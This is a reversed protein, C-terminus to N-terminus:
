PAPQDLLDRVKRALAEPTFPKQLFATDPDLVGHHVIADDTYGSIYLVRIQPSLEAIKMALGRGSMEPMVVDTVVLKISDRHTKFTELAEVGNCSEFVAYGSLRLSEAALSRVVNDDEVLLIAESGGRPPEPPGAEPGESETDEQVRPLYVKFTAGKGEESYVWIHGGSQQVIGYVTALGLGTGKGKEKTTFFPEFIHSLTEQSMGIGTDSMALLVYHGPQVGFHQQAYVKDLYINATEITLKGGAPMADRANIALNLIVQEILGPDAFVRGLSGDPMGVLEIDEGILRRLMSQTDAIVYNLDLVRPQLVQRRSFALLQSTLNAAKLGAKRIQEIDRRLPEAESRQLVLDSYGIVATMLNNFDHAVGGALTGIAEMKAAQRLQEELRKRDTVDRMIGVILEDGNEGRYLTRRTAVTHIRGESDRIEEESIDEEGSKFVAEDKKRFGDVDSKPFFDFDSRGILEDRSRGVFSCFADNLLVWRFETDKVFLPDAISNIIKDLYKRSEALAEEARKRETIDLLASLGKHSDPIVVVSNVIHKIRGARDRLQFEYTQPASKRDTRRLEHYSKMKDLDAAGAVFEMWSKKGEIEDRAYGTLKEFEKNVLSITTNEETFMLATGSNEFITRYKAESERLAAEAQRCEADAKELTGGIAKATRIAVVVAFTCFLVVSIASVYAGNLSTVFHQLLDSGIVAIFVLPVFKRLLTARVSGDTFPKIFFSDGGQAAVLGVGLIVFASSAALTMSGMGTAYQWPSGYAYSLTCVLGTLAVLGALCAAPDRTARKTGSVLLLVLSAGGLFFLLGTLPSMGTGPIVALRWISPLIPAYMSPNLGSLLGAFSLLAFISTVAVLVVCPWPRALSPLWMAAVLVMGDILFVICTSSAINGHHSAAGTLVGLGLIWGLIGALGILASAFGGSVAVVQCASLRRRDLSISM